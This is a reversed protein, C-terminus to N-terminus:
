TSSCDTTGQVSKATAPSFQLALGVFAVSTEAVSLATISMRCGTSQIIHKSDRWASYEQVFLIVRPYSLHPNRPSYGFLFFVAKHRLVWLHERLIACHSLM